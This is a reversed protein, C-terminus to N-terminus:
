MMDCRGSDLEGFDAPGALREQWSVASEPCHARAPWPGTEISASARHDLVTSDAAELHADISAHDAHDQRM